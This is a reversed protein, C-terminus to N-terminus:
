GGNAFKERSSKEAKEKQGLSRMKEMSRPEVLTLNNCVRSKEKLQLDDSERSEQNIQLGEKQGHNHNVEQKDTSIGM